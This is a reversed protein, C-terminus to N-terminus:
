YYVVSRGDSFDHGTAVAAILRAIKAGGTASPEIVSVSSYDSDETCVLRLDIVPARYKFATRLIVDNFPSLAVRVFADLGPIADYVTCFVAPKQLRMVTSVLMEYAIRFGTQAEGLLLQAEAVNRVKAALVPSENLVDNGGASIFLHTIEPAVRDLQQRVDSVTAGDVALLTAEWGPPLAERLQEVVSHEGPVYYVNDFISDGVLAIHGPKM